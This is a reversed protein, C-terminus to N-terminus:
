VFRVGLSDKKRWVVKCEREIKEAKISLTFTEPAASPDAILLLCGGNSLNRVTCDMTSHRGNFVLQAGKLVRSRSSSRQEAGM